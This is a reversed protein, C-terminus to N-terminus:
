ASTNSKRNTWERRGRPAAHRIFDMHATGDDGDPIRLPRERDAWEHAARAHVTGGGTLEVSGETTDPLLLSNPAVNLAAALAVLDGVDVRRERREIASIASATMPRGAATMKDSLEYVTIERARRVRRINEAVDSGTPDTVRKPQQKRETM